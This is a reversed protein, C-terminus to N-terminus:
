ESISPKEGQSCTTWPIELQQNCRPCQLNKVLSDQANTWHRGTKATWAKKGEDPVEYNFSTDIAANVAPWPLGTAWLDKLGFRVCDELYNRPNLMFAHWVMLVDIPTLTNIKKLILFGMGIPPLMSTTWKQVRGRKTFEMFKLSTAVMEKGELRRAEEGYCLVNLWWDEFREVARAIFLVWRKERMKALSEERNDLLECKADWLNFLGDTYGVDEKLAHFTSLLKLHALCSDTDPFAPPADSLRLSSFAASLAEATPGDIPEPAAPLPDTVAYTPLAENNDPSDGNGNGNLNAAAAAAANEQQQDPATGNGNSKEGKLSDKFKSLGLPM